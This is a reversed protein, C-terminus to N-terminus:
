GMPPSGGNWSRIKTHNLGPQVNKKKKIGLPTVLLPRPWGSHLYDWRYHVQRPLLFQRGTEGVPLPQNGVSPRTKVQYQGLVGLGM